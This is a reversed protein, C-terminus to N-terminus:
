NRVGGPRPACFKAFNIGPPRRYNHRFKWDVFIKPQLNETLFIEASCIKPRFFMSKKFTPKPHLFGVVIQRICRIRWATPRQGLSKNGCSSPCAHRLLKNNHCLFRSRHCLTSEQPVPAWASAAGAPPTTMDNWPLSGSILVTELVDLLCGNAANLNCNSGHAAPWGISIHAAAM